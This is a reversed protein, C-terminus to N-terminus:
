GTHAPQPSGPPLTPTLDQHPRLFCATQKHASDKASIWVNKNPYPMGLAHRLNAGLLRSGTINPHVGDLNFCDKCNWFINFNVIFKIGHTFCALTLGKNLGLLRLFPTSDKVLTPIPGSILVDQLKYDSLKELLLYPDNKLIESGTKKRLIYFSGAHITVKM